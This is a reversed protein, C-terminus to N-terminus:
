WHDYSTVRELALREQHEEVEGKVYGALLLLVVRMSFPVTLIERILTEDFTTVFCTGLGERVAQLMMFAAALSIDIPYSLQGNPMRYETNTSCCAIIAPAAGVHEQGFCAQEFLKRKGDEQVVVFRWPQRNKASPALRGAELIRVVSDPPIKKDEFDRISVRKKIEPLLDM